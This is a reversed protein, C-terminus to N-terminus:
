KINWANLAAQYKKANKTHESLTAAYNHTGSFDEKACMYFYAHKQYNLVGDIGAISAIRIPGPPLGKQKYTNYPSEVQLHKGLIRKLTPDGVAFKVTPDAQLLMGKHLRNIYVGAVVPYEKTTATEEEVISALTAIEVPTLSIAQAKELREATWFRKYEKNMRDLLQDVSTNWYIEYTNPIFMAPITATDFGLAECRKPDNLAQLLDNSDLMLQDGIRQALDTKLRINNFTLKVPTQQGNKLTKILEWYTMETWIKYQGTKMNEPYKMVAALWRFLSPNKLHGQSQLQSMLDPYNKQDNIYIYASDSRNFAPSHIQDYVIGTLIAAALLLLFLLASFIRRNKTKM